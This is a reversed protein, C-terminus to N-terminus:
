LEGIAKKAKIYWSEKEINIKKELAMNEVLKIKEKLKEKIERKEEIKSKEYRKVLDEIERALSRLNSYTHLLTSKSLRYTGLFYLSLFIILTFLTFIMPLYVIFGLLYLSFTSILSILVSITAYYNSLAGFIKTKKFFIYFILYFFVFSLLITLEKM